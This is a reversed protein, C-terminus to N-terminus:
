GRARSRAPAPAAPGPRTARFLDRGALIAGAVILLAAAAIAITLPGRGFAVLLLTSLLPTAYAFAGLARIDGRKVGLDWVFFAIGVPGLGLALIAALGEADPMVSTEFALHCALSLLATGGCFWGVAATPVSGLRRSMVSYGAWTLASGFAAAYGLAATGGLSMSAGGGAVLLATGVFGLGAGALHWWRLREGPLLASFLVILLPWCYNVLNAEVPPALRLAVVLLVHFGFLGGVGLAWVRPDRPLAALLGGSRVSWVLGILFAIGFAMAWLQMPPVAEVATVLLALTSWMLVALGGILTANRTAHLPQPM